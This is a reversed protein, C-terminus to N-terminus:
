GCSIPTSPLGSANAMSQKLISVKDERLRRGEGQPPPLTALEASSTPLWSRQEAEQSSEHSVGLQSVINHVTLFSAIGVNKIPAEIILFKWILLRFVKQTTIM